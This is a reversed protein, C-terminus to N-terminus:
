RLFEIWNITQGKASLGLRLAQPGSPLRLTTSVSRWGNGAPVDVSGLVASDKTVSLRGAPGSVRFRLTYLGPSDVQIQYDLTADPAQATMQALGDEDSTPFIEAGTMATYREAQLRGPLRYYLDADHVPMAVYAEGLPTLHGPTAQLLSIAANHDTSREKFWAYGEVDPSREFLDTAQILYSLGEKANAVHSYGTVWIPRKSEKRMAELALRTEGINGYTHLGVAPIATAGFADTARLFPTMATYTTSRKDTPDVATISAEKASVAALQPGVVPVGHRDAISKVRALFDASQQPPIFAQGRVNPENLALVRRPHHDALYADLGTLDEPRDGWAMPVFEMSVGPPPVDRTTTDWDYWWSVGPALAVFDAEELRNAGVGRKRSQVPADCAVVRIADSQRLLALALLSTM